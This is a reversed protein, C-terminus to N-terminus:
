RACCNRTDYDEILYRGPDFAADHLFKAMVVLIQENMSKRQLKSLRDVRRKTCEPIRLTYEEVLKDASFQPMGDEMIICDFLDALPDSWFQEPAPTNKFLRLLNM